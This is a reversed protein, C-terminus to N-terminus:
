RAAAGYGATEIAAVLADTSASTQADVHGSALDVTVDAAPDVRKVVASVASACGECAMGTVKLAVM